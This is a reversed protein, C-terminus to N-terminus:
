AVREGQLADRLRAYDGDLYFALLAGVRTALDPYHLDGNPDRRVVARRLGVAEIIPMEAQYHPRVLIMARLAARMSGALVLGARDATLETVRHAAVLNETGRTLSDSQESESRRSVIRGLTSLIAGLSSKELYDILRGLTGRIETGVLVEIASKSKEFAGHWVDSSTVRTHGFRLHAIEVGIAFGLEHPGLFLPSDPDLHDSGILLFSPSGEHAVVGTSKDGRSVFAEVGKTGLAIVARAVARHAAPVESKDLRQCYRALASHDPVEIEALWAQLMGLAGRKRATPHRLTELILSPTLPAPAPGLSSDPMSELAGSLGGPELAALVDAARQGLDGGAARALAAMHRSSLPVLQALELLTAPDPTGDQGRLNALRELLEARVTIPGAGAVEDGRPVLDLLDPPPLRVLGGELVGIAEDRREAAALADAHEIDLRACAVPDSVTDTSRSWVIEHLAGAARRLALAQLRGILGRLTDEAVPWSEAWLVLRRTAGESAAVARLTDDAVEAPAANDARSALAAATLRAWPDGREAMEDLLFLAREEGGEGGREARHSASAFRVVREAGGLGVVQSLAEYAGVNARAALWRVSGCEIRDRRGIPRHIMLPEAPLGVVDVDGLPGLAVLAARESTLAFCQDVATSEAIPSAVDVASGTDLWSLLLEGEELWSVLWARALASIDDFFPLGDEIRLPERGKARARAMAILQQAASGKGMPIDLAQDDVILRDGLARSEYRLANARLIDICVRPEADDRGALQGVLWLGTSSLCLAVDSVPGAAAKLEGDLGIRGQIEGLGASREDSM